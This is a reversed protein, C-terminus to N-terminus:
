LPEVIPARDARSDRDLSSSAAHEGRYKWHNWAATALAALIMPGAIIGVEGATSLNEHHAVGASNVVQATGMPEYGVVVKEGTATPMTESHQQAVADPGTSTITAEAGLGAVGATAGVLLPMAVAEIRREMAM